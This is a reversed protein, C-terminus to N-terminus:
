VHLTSLSNGEHRCIVASGVTVRDKDRLHVTGAPALQESPLSTLGRLFLLCDARGKVGMWGDSGPRAAASRPVSTLNGRM